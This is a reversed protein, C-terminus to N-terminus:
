TFSTVLFKRVPFLLADKYLYIEENAALSKMGVIRYWIGYTYILMHIEYSM